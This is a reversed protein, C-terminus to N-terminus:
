AGPCTQLHEKFKYMRGLSFKSKCRRCAMRAMHKDKYHRNLGSLRTYSADCMTCQHRSPHETVGAGQILGATSTQGLLRGFTSQTNEDNQHTMHAPPILGGNVLSSSLPHGSVVHAVLTQNFSTPHMAMDPSAIVAAFPNNPIPEQIPGGHGRPQSDHVRPISNQPVIPFGSPTPAYELYHSEVTIDNGSM